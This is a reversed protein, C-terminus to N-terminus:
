QLQYILSIGKFCGLTGVGSRLVTGISGGSIRPLQKTFRGRSKRLDKSATQM